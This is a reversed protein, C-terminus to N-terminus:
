KEVRVRSQSNARAAAKEYGDNKKFYKKYYRKSYGGREDSICNFVIGLIKADVFEFQRIAANLAIRDCHNQRVVVLMGDTLKTVTLADSVEGVPPLDLIIYDYSNRLRALMREMRSSSLLEMPNPPIHGSSIAHFAREDEKIGCLQILNDAATQGTLFDSLGPAKSIPLKESLSPRRMDCDVLLVRKGLQSMSYALNVASLSKGESTLASSVGIVRCSGEDAFSFQLKTRLLKYAEAAVFSINGGVLEVQGKRSGSKARGKKSSGYGYYYGGKSHLEMDPVAALVPHKCSQAIDDETRITIDMLERLVIIAAMLALGIAFGLMTNKTYSPSSPKVPLVASDVVKASTGEIISSIRKPLIYAIADAIKEAEAPDESTVVVQFIETSDVAEASIMSKLEAYTRDVGAYDIVDNLSERTKLIVIYSKVLGRSASIDSSTISLSAEGLSLSNNNVYFMATSQYKPSIFFFTGLFTVVACAVAVLGVLWAKNVVAGILRSLDIEIEDNNNITKEDM